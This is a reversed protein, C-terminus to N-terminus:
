VISKKFTNGLKQKTQVKVQLLTQMWINWASGEFSQGNCKSVLGTLTISKIEEFGTTMNQYVSVKHPPQLM